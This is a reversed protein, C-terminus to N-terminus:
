ESDPGVAICGTENNFVGKYGEAVNGENFTDLYTKHTISNAEEMADPYSLTGGTMSVQGPVFKEADDDYVYDGGKMIGIGHFSGNVCDTLYSGGEVRLVVNGLHSLVSLHHSSISGTKGESSDKITVNINAFYITSSYTADTKNYSFAIAHGALDLEVENVKEAKKFRNSKKESETYDGIIELGSNDNEGFNLDQNIVIKGGSRGVDYFARSLAKYENSWNTDDFGTVDPDAVEYSVSAYYSTTSDDAFTVTAVPTEKEISYTNDENEVACYGDVIYKSDPKVNFSGGSIVLKAISNNKGYFSGFNDIGTFMGGNIIVTKYSYGTSGIFGEYKGSNITITGPKNTANQETGDIVISFDAKVTTDNVTLKADVGSTGIYLGKCWSHTWNSDKPDIPKQTKSDNVANITSGNVTVDAGAGSVLIGTTKHAYFDSIYNVTINTNNIKSINAGKVNIGVGNTSIICSEIVVGINGGTVIARELNTTNITANKITVIKSSDSGTILIGYKSATDARLTITKNSGDITINKNDISICSDESGLTMSTNDFLVITDGDSADVVAANLNPYGVYKEINYCVADSVVYFESFHSTKFTLKGTAPDYAIDTPQTGTGNYIVKVNDTVLGKLIFTEVTVTKNAAIQQSSGDGKTIKLDIAAVASGDEVVFNASQAEEITKVETILVTSGSIAGESFKVTTKAGQEESPAIPVTIVNESSIAEFSATAKTGVVTVGFQGFTKEVELSGTITTTINASVTITIPASAYTIKKGDDVEDYMVVFDYTAAQLSLTIDNSFDVDSETTWIDKGSLSYKYSTPNYGSISSDDSKVTIDKLLVTGTGTALQSVPVTISNVKTGNKVILVNSTSGQYVATSEVAPDKRGQLEFDWRGQALTILGNSGDPTLGKAGVKVPTWVSKAGYDIEVGASGPTKAAKYFWYLDNAGPIDQSATLGRVSASSFGIQVTEDFKAENSCSVFLMSISLVATLLVILTKKM